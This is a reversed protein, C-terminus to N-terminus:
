TPICFSLFLTVLLRTRKARGIVVEGIQSRISAGWPAEERSGDRDQRSAQENGEDTQGEGGTAAPSLPRVSSPVLARPGNTSM